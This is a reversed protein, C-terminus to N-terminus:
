VCAMSLFTTTERIHVSTHSQCALSSEMYGYLPPTNGVHLQQDTFSCVNVGFGASYEELRVVAGVEVKTLGCQQLSSRGGRSGRVFIM